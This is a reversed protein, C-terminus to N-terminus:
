LGDREGTLKAIRRELEAVKVADGAAQAAYLDSRAVAIQGLLIERRTERKEVDEAIQLRADEDLDASNGLEAAEYEDDQDRPKNQM